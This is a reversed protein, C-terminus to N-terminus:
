CVLQAKRASQVCKSQSTLLPHMYTSMYVTVWVKRPLDPFVLLTAKVKFKGWGISNMCSEQVGALHEVQSKVLKPSGWGWGLCATHDVSYKPDETVPFISNYTTKM